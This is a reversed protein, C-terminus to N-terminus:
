AFVKLKISSIQQFQNPSIILVGVDMGDRHSSGDFYLKWPELELYNQSNEVISHDVIFDVVVQGKIAKLHM